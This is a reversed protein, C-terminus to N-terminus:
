LTASVARSGRARRAISLLIGIGAMTVVLSSSGYSILPLPVGTIPLLGTVTGMNIAAQMGIWGTIGGALLCGFRDPASRAVRIGLYVVFAFLALVAITGALGLEEGLIAFIFDTHASPVYSWKQRSAGLGVGLWGGSGLAIQGQIFQYGTNLPDSWPRLFSFLRARRYGELAIVPFLLLAGGGVIAALHRPRAGALYMVVLASGTCILATGLDPQVVVLLAVLGTMPMVPVTLERPDLIRDRKAELVHAAFVVLALKALESPQLTVPGLPIWRSSGGRSLGVGPILVAVMLLLVLTLLPRAAPRLRRYDFRALALMAVLGLGAGLVQRKFYVFSSGYRTFAEVSSASLIMVLGVTVLAGTTALLLPYPQAVGPASQPPPPPAGERTGRTRRRTVTGTAGRTISM